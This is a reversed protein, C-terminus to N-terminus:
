EVGGKYLPDNILQVFYEQRSKSYKERLKEGPTISVDTGKRHFVKWAEIPITNIIYPHHSTIIFQCNDSISDILDPLFNIANIGLSNEYEDIFLIGADRLLYTDLILLFLKQMGSSIDNCPIWKPINKEKICFVPTQIPVNFASIVQSINLVDAEEIFPFATKILDIVKTFGNTDIKKLINSKNHFDIEEVALRQINKSNILVKEIDPLLVGLAFNKSLEDGYFKRSVINKLNQFLPKILDEEKLLSFCTKDSSLKPLDKNQWLIRNENRHFLSINDTLNILEEFLILLENSSLENIATKLKYNYKAGLIEFDVDWDGQYIIRDAVLLRFFNVIGNMFRTKGTASDGVLLNTRAFYVEGFFWDNDSVKNQVFRLLRM